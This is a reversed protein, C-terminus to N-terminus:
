EMMTERLLLKEATAEAHFDIILIDYKLKLALFDDMADYPNDCHDMFSRGMLNLVCVKKNNKEIIVYGNGPVSHNFNLPRLLTKEDDIFKVTDPQKFIHNGSTVVDIDLDKFFNFHEQNIGKGHTANEGNVIVFDIKNDKIITALKEKLVERGPKGYVDGLMLIKYSMITVRSHEIPDKIALAIGGKSSGDMKTLVIGTVNTIESFTEAQIIGNQGTTADIVLLVEHPADKEFANLLVM